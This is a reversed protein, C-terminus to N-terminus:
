AVKRLPDGEVSALTILGRQEAEEQTLPAEDTEWSGEGGCDFCEIERSYGWRYGSGGCEPCKVNM